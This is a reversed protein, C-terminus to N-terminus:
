AHRGRTSRRGFLGFPDNVEASRTDRAPASSVSRLHDGSSQPAQAQRNNSIHGSDDQGTGHRRQNEHHKAEQMADADSKERKARYARKETSKGPQRERWRNPDRSRCRAGSSSILKDIRISVCENRRRDPRLEGLYSTKGTSDAIFIWDRSDMISAVMQRVDFRRVHCLLKKGILEPHSRLLDNTFHRSRFKIYPRVGKALNGRVTAPFTYDLLRAAKLTAAPLPQRLLGGSSSTLAAQLAEVPSSYNLGQTPTLNIGRAAAQFSDALEEVAIAINGREDPKTRRALEETVREVTDRSVWTYTPGFHVACGFTYISNRVFGDAINGLANDVRLVCFSSGKLSDVIDYAFAPSHGDDASNGDTCYRRSNLFCDLTELGSDASPTQELTAVCALVASYLEEVFVSFYWRPILKFLTKGYGNDVSVKTPQSHRHFDLIAFSGPRIPRILRPPVGGTMRWRKSVTEGGYISQYTDPDAAILTKVYRAFAGKGQDGNSLPYSDEAIGCEEIERRVRVWSDDINFEQGDACPERGFLEEYIKVRVNDHKELFATWAGALGTRMGEVPTIENKRQYRKLRAGPVLGYYGAFTGSVKRNVCRGVLRRVENESLTTLDRIHTFTADQRYLEVARKRNLYQDLKDGLTSEDPAQWQIAALAAPILERPRGRGRTRGAPIGAGEPSLPMSACDPGASLIGPLTQAHIDDPAAPCAPWQKPHATRRLLTSTSFLHQALDAYLVGEALLRALAALLLAPDHGPLDVLDGVTLSEKQLLANSLEKRAPGLDIFAAATMARCLTLGNDFEIASREIDCGTVLLVDDPLNKRDEPAERRCLVFESHGNRYDVQLDAAAYSLDHSPNGLRVPRYGVVEPRIELIVIYAFLVDSEVALLKGLKPSHFFWINVM